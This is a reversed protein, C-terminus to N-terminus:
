AGKQKSSEGGKNAFSNSRGKGFRNIRGFPNGKRFFKCFNRAMLNFAEVEEEDIDEDSGGQSDSDDITQERTFNAKLALSKVKDKTTIKSAVGDNELIMEYVNLNGVLEDLPLSTKPKEKRPLANYLSMKAENNKGLQKKEDDEILEYPKDKMMKTEPDEM